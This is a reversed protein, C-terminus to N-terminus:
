FMLKLGLQMLRPDRASTITGFSGSINQGSAGPVFTTDPSRFNARNVVNFAEARIQLNWSERIRVNKILSFDINITGPGRVDPLTRGVNGITFPAPNIFAATDFWRSLTPNSLRASAGKSNPRDAIFNNAGRVVLPLGDQLTVISNIQWGGLIMSLARSSSTWHKGDGFPLEYLGSFVMRKASDTSDLSRELRRDV